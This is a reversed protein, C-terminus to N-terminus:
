FFFDHLSGRFGSPALLPWHGSAPPLEELEMRLFYLCIIWIALTSVPDFRETAVSGDEGLASLFCLPSHHSRINSSLGVRITLDTKRHFATVLIVVMGPKHFFLRMCCPLIYWTIPLSLVLRQLDPWFTLQCFSPNNSLYSCLDQHSALPVNECVQFPGWKYISGLVQILM